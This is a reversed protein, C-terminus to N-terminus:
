NKRFVDTTTTCKRLGKRLNTRTPVLVRRVSNLDRSTSSANVNLSLTGRKSIKAKKDTSKKLTKLNRPSTKNWRNSWPWKLTNTRKSILPNIRESSSLPRQFSGKVKKTTLKLNRKRLTKSSLSTKGFNNSETLIMLKRKFNDRTSLLQLEGSKLKSKFSTKTV